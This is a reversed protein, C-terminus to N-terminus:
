FLRGKCSVCCNSLSVSMGKIAFPPCNLLCVYTHIDKLCLYSEVIHVTYEDSSCFVWCWKFNM